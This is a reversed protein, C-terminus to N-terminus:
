SNTTNGFTFPILKAVNDHWQRESEPEIAADADEGVDNIDHVCGLYHAGLMSVMVNHIIYNGANGRDEDQVDPPEFHHTAHHVGCEGLAFDLVHRGVELLIFFAFLDFLGRSLSLWNEKQYHQIENFNFSLM